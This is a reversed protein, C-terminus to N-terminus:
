LSAFCTQKTPQNIYISAVTVASLYVLHLCQAFFGAVVKSVWGQFHVAGCQLWGPFVRFGCGGVVQCKIIAWASALTLDDAGTAELYRGPPWLAFSYM